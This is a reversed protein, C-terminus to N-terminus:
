SFGRLFLFLDVVRVRPEEEGSGSAPSLASVASVVSSAFVLCSIVHQIARSSTKVLQKSQPRLLLHLSDAFPSWRLGVACSCESQAERMTCSM